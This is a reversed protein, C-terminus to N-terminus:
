DGHRSRRPDVVRWRGAALDLWPVWVDRGDLQVGLARPGRRRRARIAAELRSWAITICAASVPGGPRVTGGVLAAVSEEDPGSLWAEVHTVYLHRESDPRRADGPPIRWAPTATADRLAEQALCDSEESRHAAVVRALGSRRRELRADASNCWRLLTEAAAVPGLLIRGRAADAEVHAGAVPGHPPAARITAHLRARALAAFLGQCRSTEVPVTMDWGAPGFEHAPVVCRIAAQHRLVDRRNGSLDFTLMRIRKLTVAVTEGPRLRACAREIQREWSATVREWSGRWDSSVGYDIAPWSGARLSAGQTLSELTSAVARADIPVDASGTLTLTAMGAPHRAAITVDDSTGCRRAPGVLAAEFTAVDVHRAVLLLERSPRLHAAIERLLTGAATM